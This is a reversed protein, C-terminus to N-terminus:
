VYVLPRLIVDAVDRPFADFIRSNLHCDFRSTRQGSCGVARNWLTFGHLAWIAQVCVLQFNWTSCCLEIALTFCYFDVRDVSGDIAPYRVTLKALEAGSSDLVHSLERGIEAWRDSQRDLNIVYIREIRSREKANSPGFTQCNKRPLLRRAKLGIRYLLRSPALLPRSLNM